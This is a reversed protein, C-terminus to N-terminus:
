EEMLTINYTPLNHLQKEAQAVAMVKFPTGPAFLVEGKGLVALQPVSSEKYGEGQKDSLVAIDKGTKGYIRFLLCAKKPNRIWAGTMSGTSWFQKNHFTTGEVYITEWDYNGDEFRIVPYCISPYDPLKSLGRQCFENQNTLKKLREPDDQYKDPFLLSGNMHEFENTTYLFLGVIEEDTL